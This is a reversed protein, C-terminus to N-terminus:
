DKERDGTNIEDKVLFADPFEEVIQKYYAFADIRTRFDGVRLKHFPTAYTYYIAIDEHNEVFDERLTNARQRASPGSDSYIQIRYGETKQEGYAHKRVMERLRADQKITITGFLNDSGTVYNFIDIEPKGAQGMLYMPLSLLLILYLKNLHYM